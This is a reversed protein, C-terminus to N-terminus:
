FELVLDVDRVPKQEVWERVIIGTEQQIWEAAIHRHCFDSPVEYCLMISGDELDDVVQFPDLDELKELYAATYDYESWGGNRIGNIMEWTPALKLYWRGHFYHPAKASISVAKPDTGKKAYYSTFLQKM